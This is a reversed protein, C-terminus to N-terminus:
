AAAAGRLTARLRRLGYFVRSKVTGEPLGLVAAAQAATRDSLYTQELAARHEPPLLDLADRVMVVSLVHESDDPAPVPIAQELAVEIPRSRASRYGDMVVNHAVRMLWGRVSGHTATMRALHHWARLFTEQVVDEAWSNDGRTLRRVYTSLSARHASILEALLAEDAARRDLDADAAAGTDSNRATATM